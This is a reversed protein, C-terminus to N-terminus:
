NGCMRRILAAQTLPSQPQGDIELSLLSISEGAAHFRFEAIAPKGDYILGGRCNVFGSGDARRVSRWQPETLFSELMEGVAREPCNELRGSQVARVEAEVLVGSRDSGSWLLVVALLGIVLAAAAAGGVSIWILASRGRIRDLSPEQTPSGITETAHPGESALDAGWELPLPVRMLDDSAGDGVGQSAYSEVTAEAVLSSKVRRPPPAAPRHSTRRRADQPSGVGEGGRPPPPLPPMRTTPQDTSAQSFVLGAVSSAIMRRGSARDQILADHPLSGDAAMARLEAATFPGLQRGQIDVVFNKM